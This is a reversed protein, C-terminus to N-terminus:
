CSIANMLTAILAGQFGGYHWALATILPALRSHRLARCNTQCDVPALSQYCVAALVLGSIARALQNASVLSLGPLAPTIPSITGSCWVYRLGADPRWNFDAVAREVRQRAM